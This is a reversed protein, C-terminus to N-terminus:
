PILTRPAIPSNTAAQVVTIGKAQLCKIGVAFHNSVSMPTLANTYMAVEAVTGAFMAQGQPTAGVTGPSGPSALYGPVPKTQAAAGNIYWVASTGDFSAALYTWQQPAIPVVQSLTAPGNVTRMTLQWAGTSTQAFSWGSGGGYAGGVAPGGMALPCQDDLIVASAPKVWCEASWPGGTLGDSNVPCLPARFFPDDPDRRRGGALL